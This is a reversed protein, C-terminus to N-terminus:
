GSQVPHVRRCKKCRALGDASLSAAKNHVQEPTYKKGNIECIEFPKKCIACSYNKQQEFHGSVADFVDNECIDFMAMYLYRRMYTQVGGLAQIANAGKIELKETPSTIVIPNQESESDFAALEAFEPAFRILTFVKYKDCLKIIAPLFDGLEYYKFGAFKNNGSKKLDCDLLEAKIKQLKEYINV